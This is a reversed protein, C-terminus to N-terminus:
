QVENKTLSLNDIQVWNNAPSDSYLGIECQGNTVRINSSITVQTWSEIATKASYTVEAGGYNKAYINCINQGGSSKVWAKLTYSGNPLDKIVQKLSATYDTSAKQQMVFNGAYQRGSLNSNAEGGVTDSVQFGTPKRTIVRDAEFEPNHIYNNGAGITWTGKEANLNWQHLDNFIPKYGDFSLPVWQNYGLGNGAFDSWRDGCYIVLDQKSGKVTVYFGTQTGHSYSDSCGQMVYPLNM